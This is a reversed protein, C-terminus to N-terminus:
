NCEFFTQFNKIMPPISLFVLAILGFLFALFKESREKDEEITYFTHSFGSSLSVNHLKKNLGYIEFYIYSINSPAIFSLNKNLKIKWNNGILQKFTINASDIEELHPKINCYLESGVFVRENSPFCDISGNGDYKGFGFENINLYASTPKYGYLENIFILGSFLIFLMILITFLFWNHQKKINNIFIPYIVVTLLLVVPMLHIIFYNEPYKYFIFMGGLLIVWLLINKFKYFALSHM